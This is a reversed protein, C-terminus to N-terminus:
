KKLSWSEWVFPTRWMLEHTQSLDGAIADYRQQYDPVCTHFQVQINAFRNISPGFVDKSVLLTELVEFEGGEINLKLLDIVRVGAVRVVEHIPLFSCREVVASGAFEGSSDNQVHIDKTGGVLGSVGFNYPRIKGFGAVNRCLTEFFVAVPEYVDVRCGTKEHILKAFNGEYGGADVVLSQPTLSYAYRDEERAEPITTM